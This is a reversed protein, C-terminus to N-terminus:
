AFVQGEEYPASDNIIRETPYLFQGGIRVYEWDYFQGRLTEGIYDQAEAVTDVDIAVQITAVMILKAM